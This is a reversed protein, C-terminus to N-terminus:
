NKIVGDVVSDSRVVRMSQYYAADECKSVIKSWDSKGMVEPSKPVSKLCNCFLEQRLKQDQAVKYCRSEDQCAVLCVLFFLVYIKM